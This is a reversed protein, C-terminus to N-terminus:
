VPLRQIVLGRRHFDPAFAKQVTDWDFSGVLRGGADAVWTAVEVEPMPHMEMPAESRRPQARRRFRQLRSPAAVTVPAETLTSGAAAFWSVGEQVLDVQLTWAGVAQPATVELVTRCTEGPALDGPLQARGDDPQDAPGDLSGGGDRSVWHNGVQVHHWGDKGAAPWTSGSRNTVEVTVEASEGPALRPPPSPLTLEARFAEAPLVEGSGVVPETVVEFMAWGGPRLARVLDAVYGRALTPDIHQLVHATLAFDYGPSPQGDPAHLGDLGEGELLVFRCGSGAPLRRQAEAIMSPAIDVGDVSAFVEGLAQTLRGVGCGFDLARETGLSGGVGSVVARVQDLILGLETRGFAFFEAEDWRGGRTGPWTLVAWLPDDRGHEDWASRLQALGM